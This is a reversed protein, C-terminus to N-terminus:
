TIEAKALATTTKSFLMNAIRRGPKEVFRHVLLSLAVCLVITVGSLLPAAHLTPLVKKPVFSLYTGVVAQFIYLAYSAEGLRVLAPRSLCWAVPGGGLALGFIAAGFLPALLGNHLLPYPIRDSCLLILVLVVVATSSLLPGLFPPASVRNRLFGLGLFTGFLFTPLHFPPFFKIWYLYAGSTTASGLRGPGDPDLWMYLAPPILAAIFCLAMGLVIYPLNRVRRIAWPFVAYFFAEVSLSWGPFNWAMAYAPWWAQLLLASAAGSLAMERGTARGTLVEWAAVPIWACLAVIYNPFVRGFRAQWFRLRDPGYGELDAYSYALIFGSLVFFLTVGTYGADWLNRFCSPGAFYIPKGYHYALVNAAAIFRAGTLAPLPARFGGTM